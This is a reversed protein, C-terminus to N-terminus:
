RNQPSSVMLTDVSGSNTSFTTSTTPSYWLGGSRATTSHTSSFDWIWASSREWGTNGISGPM